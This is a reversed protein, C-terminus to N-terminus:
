EETQQFYYNAKEIFIDSEAETMKSRVFGAFLSDLNDATTGNRGVGDGIFSRQQYTTKRIEVTFADAFIEKIKTKSLEFSQELRIDNLVVSVIAAATEKNRKFHYITELLQDLTKEFCKEIVLKHWNRTKIAHFIPTSIGNETVDLTCFGKEQGIESESMRETSGCYWANKLNGVTQFNHWHGLAVYDFQDLLDYKEQPFLVDGYLDELYKKGMSTHLMLINQKGAVPKIKEVEQQRVSEQRIFPLGHVVVNHFEFREYQEGFIPFIGDITQFAGLIPSSFISKPASHNGAIIVMPIKLQSVRRLQQLAFTIARNTPRPRHFFDGSHIVLDPKQRAIEDIVLEFADYFDQERINVDAENTLDYNEYGLHTDSFHVIKKM